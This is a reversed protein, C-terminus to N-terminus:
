ATRSQVPKLVRGSWRKIADALPQKHLPEDPVLKKARKVDCQAECEAVSRIPKM